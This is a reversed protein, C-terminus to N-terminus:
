LVTGEGDLHIKKKKNGDSVQITYIIRIRRDKVYYVYYNTGIVRWGAYDKLGTRMIEIPLALNRFREISEVMEGRWDYFAEITGKQTRFVVLFLADRGDFLDSQAVDYEVAMIQYEKVAKPTLPSQIERLYASESQAYENARIASNMDTNQGHAIGLSGLFALLMLLNKM